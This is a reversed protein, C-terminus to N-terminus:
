LHDGISKEDMAQVEHNPDRADQALNGISDTELIFPLGRSSFEL